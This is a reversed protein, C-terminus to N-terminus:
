GTSASARAHGGHAAQATAFVRTGARGQLAARLRDCSTVIAQPGGADVFRLAAEVKPGMTGPPFHGAAAYGRLEEASVDDLGRATPTGYNVYIREVDTSLVLRDVHLRTALLASALDKDVVAEVGTLRHGNRVVPIGGGGLTIVVVDADVLTRIVPEEVIERPEPSAVARRYGHPPEEVMTWDPRRRGAAEANSYFPGIPKTPEVFGPDQPDVVVQALVTAVPRHAGAGELACGLSQQLLFGIEGQTSAVCVDLSLPYAEGASRESRLLAAGVQPGNGHTLVVRWGDRVVDAIARCTEEVHTRQAAITAPENARILANGGIAILVTPQM